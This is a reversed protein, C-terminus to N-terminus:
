FTPRHGVHHGGESYLHRGRNFIILLLLEMIGNRIGHRLTQSIGVAETAHLLAALVPSRLVQVYLVQFFETLPLLGRFHLYLIGTQCITLCQAFNPQSGNLSTAATVFGLRSGWQFKSPHGLGALRDQGNTPRLEGYQSLMHLVYQQKVLKESQRYM